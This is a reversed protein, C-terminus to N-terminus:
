DNRAQVTDLVLEMGQSMLASGARLPEPPGIPKFGLATYLHM